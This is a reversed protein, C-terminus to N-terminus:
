SVAGVNMLVFQGNYPQTPTTIGAISVVGGGQGDTQNAIEQSDGGSNATLTVVAGGSMPITATFDIQFVTQDTYGAPQYNLYYIQTLGGSATSNAITLSYINHVLQYGPGSAPTGGAYFMGSNLGSAGAAVGGTYTKGEVVGRFRLTVSYVYTPDGELTTSTVINAACGLIVPGESGSSVVSLGPLLWELGDLALPAAGGGTAQSLNPVLLTGSTPVDAVSGNGTTGSYPTTLTGFTANSIATALVYPTGPQESFVLVTGASLTQADSFVVSTSGNTVDATGSLATESTTVDAVDAAPMYVLQCRGGDVLDQLGPPSLDTTSSAVVFQGPPLQPDACIAFLPWNCVLKVSGYIADGDNTSLLLYWCDERQNYSFELLYPVGDLTTTQSYFPDNGTPVVQATM